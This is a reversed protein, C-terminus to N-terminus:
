AIQSISKASLKETNNRTGANRMNIEFLLYLSLKVIFPSFINDSFTSRNAPYVFTAFYYYMDPSSSCDM